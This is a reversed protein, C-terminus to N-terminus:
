YNFGALLLRGTLSMIRGAKGSRRRESYRTYRLPAVMAVLAIIAFKLTKQKTQNIHFFVILL